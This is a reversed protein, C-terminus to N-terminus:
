PEDGTEHERGEPEKGQTRSTRGGAGPGRARTPSRHRRPPRRPTPPPPAPGGRASVVLLVCRAASRLRWGVFPLGRGVFPPGPGRPAAGPAPPRRRPPPPGPSTKDIVPGGLEESM